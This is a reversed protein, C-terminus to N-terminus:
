ALVWVPYSVLPCIGAVTQMQFFGKVESKQQM